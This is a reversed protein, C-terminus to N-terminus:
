NKLRRLSRRRKKGGRKRKQRKYTSNHPLPQAGPDTPPNLTYHALASKLRSLREETVGPNRHRKKTNHHKHKSPTKEAPTAIDVKAFKDLLEDVTLPKSM